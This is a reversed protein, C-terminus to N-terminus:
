NILKTSLILSLLDTLSKSRGISVIKSFQRVKIM